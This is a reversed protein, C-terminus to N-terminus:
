ECPIAENNDYDYRGDCSGDENWLTSIGTPSDNLYIIEYHKNGNPYWFTHNGERIGNCYFSLEELQTRSSDYWKRYIGHYGGGGPLEYYKFNDGEQKALQSYDIKEGYCSFSSTEKDQLDFFAGMATDSLMTLEQTYNLGEGLSSISVKGSPMARLFGLLTCKMSWEGNSDTIGQWLEKNNATEIEVTLGAITEGFNRLVDINILYETNLLEAIRKAENNMLNEAREIWIKNALKLFVAQLYNDVLDAKHNDSIKKELAANSGGLYTFGPAIQSFAFTMGSTDKWFASVYKDIEEAILREVEESTKAKSAISYFANFWDVASRKQFDQLTPISSNQYYLNYADVYMQERQEIAATAFANISYDIMFVGVSAIKMASTGWKGIAYNSMNKSLNLVASQPKGERMEMALQVFALGLGFEGMATNIDSLIGMELVEEAFTFATGIVNFMESGKNWGEKIAEDGPEGNAGMESLIKEIKDPYVNYASSPLFFTNDTLAMPSNPDSNIRKAKSFTSLHTTQITVTKKDSNIEYFVQDWRNELSNLYLAGYFEEASVGVPIAVPDYPIEIELVGPLDKLSGLSIYFPNEVPVEYTNGGLQTVNLYVPENLMNEPITIGITNGASFYQPESSPQVITSILNTSNYEFYAPELSVVQSGLMVSGGSIVLEFSKNDNFIINQATKTAPIILLTGDTSNQLTVTAGLRAVTFASADSKITIVNNGPFNILKAGAGSELTVKNIGACGYIHVFSGSQINSTTDPNGQTLIIREDPTNINNSFANGIGLTKAPSLITIILVVIWIFNSIYFKMSQKM